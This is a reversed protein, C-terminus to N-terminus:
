FVKWTSTHGLASRDERRRGSVLHVNSVGSSDGPFESFRGDGELILSTLTPPRYGWGGCKYEAQFVQPLGRPWTELALVPDAKIDRLPKLLEEM